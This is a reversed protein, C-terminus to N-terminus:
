FFFINLIWRRCDLTQQSTPAKHLGLGGALFAVARRVKCIVFIQYVFKIDEEAGGGEFFDQRHGQETFGGTNVLTRILCLSM